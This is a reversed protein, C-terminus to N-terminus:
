MKGSIRDYERELVEKLKMELRDEKKWPEPRVRWATVYKDLCDGNVYWHGRGFKYYRIDIGAEGFDATCEYECYDGTLPNIKEEPLRGSTIPIWRDVQQAELAAIAFECAKIMNYIDIARDRSKPPIADLLDYQRKKETILIEIAKEIENM